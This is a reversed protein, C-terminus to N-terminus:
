LSNASSSSHKLGFLQQAGPYAYGQRFNVNGAEFRKLIEDDKGTYDLKLQNDLDFNALTNYNIPFKLKDGISANVNLQTNM